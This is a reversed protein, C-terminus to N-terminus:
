PRRKRAPRAGTRHVSSRNPSPQMRRVASLTALLEFWSPDDIAGAQLFASALTVADGFGVEILQEAIKFFVPHKVWRGKHRPRCLLLRARAV